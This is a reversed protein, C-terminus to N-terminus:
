QAFLPLLHPANLHQALYCVEMTKDLLLYEIDGAKQRDLLKEEDESQFDEEFDGEEEWYIDQDMPQERDAM